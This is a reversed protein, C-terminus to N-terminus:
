EGRILKNEYERNYGNKWRKKPTILSHFKFSKRLNGLLYFFFNNEKFNDTHSNM